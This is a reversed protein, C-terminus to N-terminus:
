PKWRILKAELSDSLENEWVSGTVLDALKAHVIAALLLSSTFKRSTDSYVAESPPAVLKPGTRVHKM